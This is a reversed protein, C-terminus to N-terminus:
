EVVQSGTTVQLQWTNTDLKCEKEGLNCLQQGEALCSKKRKFGGCREEKSDWLANKHSLVKLAGGATRKM